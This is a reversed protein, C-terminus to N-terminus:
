NKGIDNMNRTSVILDVVPFRVIPQFIRTKIGAKGRIEVSVWRGLGSADIRPHQCFHTLNGKVILGVGGWQSASTSEHRNGALIVLSKEEWKAKKIETKLNKEVPLCEWNIGTEAIGFIDFRQKGLWKVFEANKDLKIKSELWLRGVNNFGVVIEGKNTNFVHGWPVKTNSEVEQTPTKWGSEQELCSM